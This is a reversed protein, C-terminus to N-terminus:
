YRLLAAIHGAQQLEANERVVNVDAGTAVARLIARNVADEVPQMGEGSCFPCRASREAAVYGCHGCAYGPASYHQDVLLQRVRGQQLGYLTDALGIVGAGGKSAATIVDSVLRREEELAVEEMVELSRNLMETPTAEVDAAFEGVVRARLAAPMLEKAQALVENSGALVIQRCDTGECYARIAEVAQKLNRMALNDTRRQYTAASWGGQKHRKLEEGVGETVSEITGTHVAFLRLSERDILAVVYEGFRDIVDSLVRVYPQETYYARTDVAVPLRIAKWLAEGASFLALGRASWDYEYDLYRLVREVDADPPPTDLGKLRNRVALKVGDVSDRALDTAAYVSLVRPSGAYEVLEQLDRKQLM